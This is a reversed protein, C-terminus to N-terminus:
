ENNILGVIRLDGDRSDVINLKPLRQQDVPYLFM